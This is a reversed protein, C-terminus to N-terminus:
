RHGSPTHGLATELLIAQIEMCVGVSGFHSKLFDLVQCADNSGVVLACVKDYHVEGFAFEPYLVMGLFLFM